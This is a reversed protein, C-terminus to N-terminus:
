GTGDNEGRQDGVGEQSRSVGVRKRLALPCPRQHVVTLTVNRIDRNTQDPLTQDGVTTISGDANVIPDM